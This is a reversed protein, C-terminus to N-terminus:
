NFKNMIQENTVAVFTLIADIDPMSVNENNLIEKSEEIRNKYENIKKMEYQVKSNELIKINDSLLELGDIGRQRNQALIIQLM